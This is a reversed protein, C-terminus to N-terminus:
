LQDIPLVEVTINNKVVKWWFDGQQEFIEMSPWHLGTLVSGRSSDLNIGYLGDKDRLEQYKSYANHGHVQFKDRRRTRGRNWLISVETQHSLAGNGLELLKEFPISPNIPAHTIILDDTEIFKPLSELYKIYKEDIKQHTLEILDKHSMGGPEFEPVGFSNLAKVGGNMLWIGRQYFDNQRYFDIMMHEHNGLIAKGNNMFFDLVEKSYPGRDVMDGVSVPTANKPMKDLLKQLTKYRGAIDGIINFEITNSM